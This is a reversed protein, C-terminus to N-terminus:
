VKMLYPIGAVVAVVWLGSGVRLSLVSFDNERNKASKHILYMATTQRRDEEIVIYM